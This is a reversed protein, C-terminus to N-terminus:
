DGREIMQCYGKDAEDTQGLRKPTQSWRWAMCRSGVCTYEFLERPGGRTIIPCTLHKSMEETRIM